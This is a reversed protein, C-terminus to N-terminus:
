IDKSLCPFIEMRFFVRNKMFLVTSSFKLCWTEDYDFFIGIVGPEWWGRSLFRRMTAHTWHTWHKGTFLFASLFSIAQVSWFRVHWTKQYFVGDDRLFHVIEGSLFLFCFSSCSCLWMTCELADSFEVAQLTELYNWTCM